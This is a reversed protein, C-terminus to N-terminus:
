GIHTGGGELARTVPRDENASALIVKGVGMGLAEQAGLMKKRMRGQAMDM